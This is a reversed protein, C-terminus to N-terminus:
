LRDGYVRFWEKEGAFPREVSLASRGGLHAEEEGVVLGDVRQVPIVAVLILRGIDEREGLAVVQRIRRTRRLRKVSRLQESVYYDRNLGRLPLRALVSRAEVLLQGQEGNVPNEMEEAEVVHGILARFLHLLLFAGEADSFLFLL